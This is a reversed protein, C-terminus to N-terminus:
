SICFEDNNFVILKRPVYQMITKQLKMETIDVTALALDIFFEFICSFGTAAPVFRIKKQIIQAILCDSTRTFCILSSRKTFSVISSSPERLRVTLKM